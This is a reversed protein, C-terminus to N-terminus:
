APRPMTTRRSSLPLCAPRWAWAPPSCSPPPASRPAMTACAGAPGPWTARWGIQAATEVTAITRVSLEAGGVRAVSGVGPVALLTRTVTDDVFWSLGEADMRTSAIAYGLIPTGALEVKRVVPDRLEPPLDARVRSIADRVDDVALQVPKDLRFEVTIDAAGDTVSSQIHRVGQMSALANEIRRAVETEVQAPSAGPWAASVTVTPLDLDPFNQVKMGAFAMLGALTMLVFLPIVPIPNHISWTSLNLKM